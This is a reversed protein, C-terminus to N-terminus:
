RRLRYAGSAGRLEGCAPGDPLQVTRRTSGRVICEGSDLTDILKAIGFDLIKIRGEDTVM